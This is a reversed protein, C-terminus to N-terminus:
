LGLFTKKRAKKIPAETASRVLIIDSGITEVDQWAITVDELRAGLGLMESRGYIILREIRATEGDFEIDDVMGLRAGSALCVVEKERLESFLM